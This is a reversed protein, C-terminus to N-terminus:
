FRSTDSYRSLIVIMRRSHEIAHSIRELKICGPAFDRQQEVLKFGHEKEMRFKSIADYDFVDSVWDFDQESCFAVNNFGYAHLITVKHAYPLSDIM